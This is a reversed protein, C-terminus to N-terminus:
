ETLSVLVPSPGLLLLSAFSCLLGAPMLWHYNKLKDTLWGWGPSFIGYMASLLLFILGVKGPTLQFQVTPRLLLELIQTTKVKSLHPELTPDLFSWTISVVVIIACIVM